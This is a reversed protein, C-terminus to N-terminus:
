QRDFLRQQLMKSTEEHDEMYSSVGARMALPCQASGETVCHKTPQYISRSKLLNSLGVFDKM